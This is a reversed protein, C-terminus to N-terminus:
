AMISLNYVLDFFEAISSTTSTSPTHTHIHTHAHAHTYNHVQDPRLDLDAIRDRQEEVPPKNQMLLPVVPGDDGGDLGARAAQADEM